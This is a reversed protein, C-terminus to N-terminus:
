IMGGGGGGGGGGGLFVAEEWGPQSWVARLDPEMRVEAPSTLPRLARLVLAAGRADGSLAFACAGNFAVAAREDVSGLAGPPADRLAQAYLRAAEAFHAVAAAAPPCLAGAEAAAAVAEAKGLLMSVEACGVLGDADRRSLTLAAGYGEAVAARLLARALQLANGGAAAALDARTAAAARGLLSTGGGGGGGEEAPLGTAAAAAIAALEGSGSAADAREALAVLVDGLANHPQPDGRAFAAAARLRGAAEGLLRVTAASSADPSVAAAIRSATYLGVGWNHLLGPLDDGRASDCAGCARAYLHLARQVDDEPTATTPQSPAARAVAARAEARQMLADALDTLTEVPPQAGEENGGGDDDAGGNGEPPPPLLTEYLAVARSLLREAFRADAPGDHSDGGRFRLAAEACLARAGNAAADEGMAWAEARQEESSEAREAASAASRMAGYCADSAAQLLELADDIARREAECALAQPLSRAAQLAAEAQRQRAEGEGLLARIALAPQTQAVHHAAQFARMYHAAAADFDAPTAAAGKRAAREALADAIRLLGAASLDEEEAHGGRGGGRASRAGGRAGSRGGRGRASM